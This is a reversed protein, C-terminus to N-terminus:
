LYGNDMKGGCAREEEEKGVTEEKKEEKKGREESDQGEEEMPMDNVDSKVSQLLSLAELIILEKPTSVEPYPKPLKTDLDSRVKRDATVPSKEAVTAMTEILAKENLPAKEGM